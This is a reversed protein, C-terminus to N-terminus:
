REVNLAAEAGQGVDGGFPLVVEAMAGPKLRVGQQENVEVRVFFITEGLEEHSSYLGRQADKKRKRSFLFEVETVVGKLAADTLSPIKVDVEMGETVRRFFREPMELRIYMRSVDAVTMLVAHQGVMSGVDVKSWVGSNWVKSYRVLGSAPAKLVLNERQQKLEDLREQQRREERESRRIGYNYRAADTELRKGLTEVSLRRQVVTYEAQCIQAEDPGREIEALRIAAAELQLEARERDRRLRAIELPSLTARDMAEVRKLSRGQFELRIRALEASLKAGLLGSSVDPEKLDSLALEAMTLYNQARALNFTNERTRIKIQEQETERANTARKLSAEREKIEEDTDATDLRAVVDDAEVETDEAILWSVKQWGRIREVVVDITDAPVLEGSVQFRSAVPAGGTGGSDDVGNEETVGEEPFRGLWDVERGELAHDALVFFGDEMTGAMREYTGGFSLFHEGDRTRVYSAPVSPGSVASSAVVEVEATMGVRLWEPPALPKVTVDYVQIGSDTDQRWQEEAKEGRDHPMASFSGLEGAFPDDPRSSVRIVAQDGETYYRRDTEAVVGRFVLTEQDPIRLYALNKWMKEGTREAHQRFVPLYVVHGSVPARVVTKELDEERERIRKERMEVRATAGKREIESLREHEEIAHKTKDIELETNAIQLEMTRLRSALAPRSAFALMDQRYQLRARREQHAREYKDLEAPSIMERRFRDKAREHDERAADYELQAVHLHGKAITVDDPDPLARYRLLQTRLVALQDDLEALHDRLDMERNRLEILKRELEARAEVGRRRLEDLGTLISDKDFETIIEGKEVFTGDPVVRLLQPWHLPCTITVGEDAVAVTRLHTHRVLERQQVVEACCLPLLLAVAASLLGHFPLSHRSALSIHSLGLTNSPTRSRGPTPAPRFM